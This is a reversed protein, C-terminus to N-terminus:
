HVVMKQSLVRGNWRMQVFYVGAKLDLEPLNMQHVGETYDYKRTFVVQGTVNIFHIDVPQFVKGLDFILTINDGHSPNPYVALIASGKSVDKLGTTKLAEKTFIINGTSTSDFKKFIIKYILGRSTKIFYATSDAVKWQNKAADFIKWDHGIVNIRPNFNLDQYIDSATDRKIVKAVSVGDNHLVGILSTSSVTGSVPDIASGQYRGAVIDWDKILPERDIKSHTTLSYYGFNKGAFNNKSLSGSKENAGDLDAYRFTFTTDYSLRDIVIKKWTGSATKLIYISDGNVHHTAPNYGGWGYDFFNNSSINFSGVTWSTDLGNQAVLKLTDVKLTSWDSVPAIAKFLTSFPNTHIAADRQVRTSFALDWDTYPKKTENDTEFKYWVQQSFNAGMSITDLTQASLHPLCILTILTLQIFIKM